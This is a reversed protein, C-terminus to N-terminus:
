SRRLGAGTLILTWEPPPPLPPMELVASSPQVEGLVVVVAFAGSSLEAELDLAAVCVCIPEWAQAGSCCMQGPILNQAQQHHHQPHTPTPPFLIWMRAPLPVSSFFPPGGGIGGSGAWSWGSGNRVEPASRGMVGVGIDKRGSVGCFYLSPNM